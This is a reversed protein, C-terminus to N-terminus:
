KAREEDLATNLDIEGQMAIQKEEIDKIRKMLATYGKWLLMLFTGSFGLVIGGLYEQIAEM